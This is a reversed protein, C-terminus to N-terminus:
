PTAQVVLANAVAVGLILDFWEFISCVTGALVAGDAPNRGVASSSATGPYIVAM